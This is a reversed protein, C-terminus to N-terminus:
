EGHEVLRRETVAGKGDVIIAYPADAMTSADFGSIEAV